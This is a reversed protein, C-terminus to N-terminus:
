DARLKTSFDPIETHRFLPSFLPTREPACFGYKETFDEDCHGCLFRAAVSGVSKYLILAAGVPDRKKAFFANKAGGGFHM